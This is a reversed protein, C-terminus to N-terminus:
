RPATIALMMKGLIYDREVFGAVKREDDVVLLAEQNNETMEQLAEVYTAKLSMSKEFFGPFERLISLDNERIGHLCREATQDNALINRLSRSRMYGVFKRNSDIFIVFKFEPFQMLLRFYEELGQREYQQGGLVLELSFPSPPGSELRQKVRGLVGIADKQVIMMDDVSPAITETMSRTESIESILTQSRTEAMKAEFGGPGKLELIKEAVILYVLVPLFILSLLVADQEIRFVFQAIWVVLLSFASFLLGFVVGRAEKNEPLQIM